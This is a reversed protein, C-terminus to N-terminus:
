CWKWGDMEEDMYDGGQKNKSKNQEGKGGAERGGATSDRERQRPRLRVWYEEKQEAATCAEQLLILVM